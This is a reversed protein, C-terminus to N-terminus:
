APKIPLFVTLCSAWLSIQRRFLIVLYFWYSFYFNVNELVVLNCCGVWTLLSNMEAHHTAKEIKQAQSVKAGELYRPADVPGLPRKVSDSAPM